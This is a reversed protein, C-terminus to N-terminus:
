PPGGVEFLLEIGIAYSVLWIIIWCVAGPVVQKWGHLSWLLSFGAFVLLPFALILLPVLASDMWLLLSWAGLFLIAAAFNGIAYRTFRSVPHPTIM